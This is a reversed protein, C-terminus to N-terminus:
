FDYVKTHSKCYTMSSSHHKIHGALNTIKECFVLNSTNECIRKIAEGEWRDDKEREREKDRKRQWEKKTVREKKTEREKKTDREKKTKRERM